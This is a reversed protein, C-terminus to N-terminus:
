PLCASAAWWLLASATPPHLLDVFQDWTGMDFNPDTILFPFGGGEGGLSWCLLWPLGPIAYGVFILVSTLNDIM